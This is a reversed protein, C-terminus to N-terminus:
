SHLNTLIIIYEATKYQIQDKHLRIIYPFLLRLM